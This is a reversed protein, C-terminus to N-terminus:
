QRGALSLEAAELEGPRMFAGGHMGSRAMLIQQATMAWRAIVVTNVDLKRGLAEAERAAERGEALIDALKAVADVMEAGAANCAGVLEALRAADAKRQRAAKDQAAAEERAGLAVLAASLEAVKAAANDRAERAGALDREPAEDLVVALALAGTEADLKEALAEAEELQERLTERTGAFDMTATKMVIV